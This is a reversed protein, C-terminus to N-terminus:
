SMVCALDKNEFADSNPCNINSNLYDTNIDPQIDKCVKNKFYCNKGETDSGSVLYEFGKCNEESICEENCKNVNSAYIKGIGEVGGSDNWCNGPCFSITKDGGVSFGNGMIICLLYGLIFSIIYIVFKNM